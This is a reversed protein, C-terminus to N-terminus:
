SSLNLFLAKMLLIELSVEASSARSMRILASSGGAELLCDEFGNSVVEDVEM